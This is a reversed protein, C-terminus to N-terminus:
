GGLCVKSCRLGYCLMDAMKPDEQVANILFFNRCAGIPCSSTQMLENSAFTWYPTM